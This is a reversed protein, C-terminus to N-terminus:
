RETLMSAGCQLLFHAKADLTGPTRTHDTAEGSLIWILM